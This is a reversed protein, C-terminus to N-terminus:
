KTRFLQQTDSLATIAFVELVIWGTDGWIFDDDGYRVESVEGIDM